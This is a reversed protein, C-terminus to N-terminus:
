GMAFLVILWYLPPGWCLLILGIGGILGAVRYWAPLSRIVRFRMPIYWTAYVGPLVIPLYQLILQPMFQANLMGVLLLLAVPFMLAVMGCFLKASRIRKDDTSVPVPSPLGPLTLETVRSVPAWAPMGQRWVPMQPDYPGRLLLQIMEVTSIPGLRQGNITYFWCPVDLKPTPRLRTSVDDGEHLPADMHVSDEVPRLM